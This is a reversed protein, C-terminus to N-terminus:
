AREQVMSEPALVSKVIEDWLFYNRGGFNYTRITGAKRLNYLHQRSIGLKEQVEAGTLLEQSLENKGIKDVIQSLNSVSTRLEDILDKM